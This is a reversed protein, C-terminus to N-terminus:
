QRPDAQSAWAPCAAHRARYASAMHGLVRRASRVGARREPRPHARETKPRYHGSGGTAINPGDRIYVGVEEFRGRLQATCDDGSRMLRATYAMGRARQGSNRACARAGGIPRRWGDASRRLRKRSSARRCGSRAHDRNPRAGQESATRGVRGSGRRSTHSAIEKVCEAPCDPFLRGIENALEREFDADEVARRERERQRRRLRADEDALCEAEAKELAPEEVLVGQREYRRRARSFRVVVASLRSHKRARRTLAADGAGLFTLHALDACSLCLPGSDDMTLWGADTDGCASCTWEKLPSVVVIEPREPSASVARDYGGASAERRRVFHCSPATGV